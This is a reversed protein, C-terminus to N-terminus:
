VTEYSGRGDHGGSSAPSTPLSGVPMAVFEQYRMAENQLKQRQMVWGVGVVVFLTLMGVIGGIHSGTTDDNGDESGGTNVSSQVAATTATKKVVHKAARAPPAAPASAGDMEREMDEMQQDTTSEMDQIAKNENGSEMDQAVQNMDQMADNMDQNMDQEMADLGPAGGYGYTPTDVIVAPQTAGTGGGLTDDMM